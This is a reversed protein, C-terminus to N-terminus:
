LDWNKPTSADPQSITGSSSIYVGVKASYFLGTKCPKKNDQENGM